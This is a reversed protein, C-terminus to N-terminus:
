TRRAAVAAFWSALEHDLGVARVFALGLPEVPDVPLVAVRLYASNIGSGDGIKRVALFPADAFPALAKAGGVSLEQWRERVARLLEARVRAEAEARVAGEELSDVPQLLEVTETLGDLDFESTALALVFPHRRLREVESAHGAAVRAAFEPTAPHEWGPVASALTAGM